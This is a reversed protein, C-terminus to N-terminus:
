RIGTVLYQSLKVEPFDSGEQSQSRGALAATESRTILKSTKKLGIPIVLPQAPQARKPRLLTWASTAVGVCNVLMLLLLVMRLWSTISRYRMPRTVWAEANQLIKVNETQGMTTGITLTHGAYGRVPSTLGLLDEILTKKVVTRRYYEHSRATANYGILSTFSGIVFLLAALATTPRSDLKILGAGVSIAASNFVMYYMTRDWGLKVEFRYEDIAVKYLDFLEDRTLEEAV